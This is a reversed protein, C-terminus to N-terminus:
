HVNAGLGSKPTFRVHRRASCIDAKSGFRVQGSGLAAPDPPYSPPLNRSVSPWGPSCSLKSLAAFRIRTVNSAEKLRACPFEYQRYHIPRARGRVHPASVCLSSEEHFQVTVWAQASGAISPSAFMAFPPRFTRKQCLASMGELQVACTRKPTLASMGKQVAYTRKQRLASM